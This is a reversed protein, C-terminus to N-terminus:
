RGAQGAEKPDLTTGTSVVKGDGDFVVSFIKIEQGDAFRWDWVEEDKLEFRQKKAPMGLLRRVQGGDLGPTVQSFNAPKLVQRLSSMRGDSDISIMYNTQGAPQRPYELTRAGSSEEYVAAPEGFRSRVDAETSVGEELESIKKQDCGALLSLSVVLWAM